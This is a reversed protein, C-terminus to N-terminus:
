RRELHHHSHEPVLKARSRAREGLGQALIEGARAADLGDEIAMLTETIVEPWDRSLPELLIQITHWTFPDLNHKNATTSIM